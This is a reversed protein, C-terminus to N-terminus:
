FKKRNEWLQCNPLPSCQLKSFVDKQHDTLWAEYVARDPTETNLCYTYMFKRLERTMTTGTLSCARKFAAKEIDPVLFQIPELSQTM